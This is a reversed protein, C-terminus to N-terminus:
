KWWIKRERKQNLFVKGEEIWLVAPRYAGNYNNAMSLQYAGSVPIALYEGEEVRPFPLDEILVDGSECYPGGIWVQEEWPRSLAQLPLATYRAGYLAPRPNDALGGDVLLWTRGPRRKITGIRYLAIGAQAILSRGPELHLYPFPLSRKKVGRILCAVIEALYTEISLWPLDDERYPVGWGGGPSFHWEEPWPIEGALDLAQEIAACLPAPDRFQSGIHFHLGRVILGNQRAERVADLLEEANMGFKSEHHGTQIHSHTHPAIGPQLRLWLEPLCSGAKHWALLRQLESRNDVVIVQAQRIAHELDLPSKNVGHVLLPIRSSSKRTTLIEGYSSCDIWAGHRELWRILRPSLYAKGAYTIAFPAPYHRRLTEVYATYRAELTAADYVYLPTGYQEALDQLRYGQLTLQDDAIATSFPFLSLRKQLNELSPM